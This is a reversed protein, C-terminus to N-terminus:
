QASLSKPSLSGTPFFSLVTEPVPLFCSYFVLIRLGKILEYDCGVTILSLISSRGLKDEMCM